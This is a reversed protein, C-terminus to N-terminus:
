SVVSAIKVRILTSQHSLIWVPLGNPSRSPSSFGYSHTTTASPPLFHSVTAFSMDYVFQTPNHFNRRMLSIM